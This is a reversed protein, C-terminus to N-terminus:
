AKRMVFCPQLYTASYGEILGIMELSAWHKEAYKLPIVAEGYKDATLSGGGGSGYYVFEGADYARVATDRDTFIGSYADSQASKDVQTGATYIHSRPRTTLCAIGGPKLVRAFEGIWADALDKPLHSFVSFAYVLDLSNDEIPLPPAHNSIAYNPGKVHDRAFSLFREEVDFGSLNEPATDRLWFRIIRGWSVGFDMIKSKKSLGNGHEILMQRCFKWFMFADRLASEGARGVTGTQLAEPPLPFIPTEAEVDASGSIKSFWEEDSLAAYTM